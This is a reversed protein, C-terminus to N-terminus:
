KKTEVQYRLYRGEEVHQQSKRCTKDEVAYQHRLYQHVAVLSNCCPLDFALLCHFLCGSTAQAYQVPRSHTFSSLHATSLSTANNCHVSHVPRNMLTPHPKMAKSINCSPLTNSVIGAARSARTIKHSCCPTNESTCATNHPKFHLM